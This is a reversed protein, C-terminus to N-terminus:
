NLTKDLRDEHLLSVIVALFSPLGMFVVISRPTIFGDNAIIFPSLISLYILIFFGAGILVSTKQANRLCWYVFTIALVLLTIVYIYSTLLNDSHLVLFEQSKVIKVLNDKIVTLNFNTRQGDSFRMLIFNTLLSVFYIGLTWFFSICRNQKSAKPFLFIVAFTLLLFYPAFSQYIALVMSLYLFLIFSNKLTVGHNVVRRFALSCLLIGFSYPLIVEPFLFLAGMFVNNFLLIVSLVLIAVNLKSWKEKRSLLTLFVVYSSISIIVIALFTSLFFAVEYDLNIFSLINLFAFTIPRGNTFFNVVPYHGTYNYSDVSFHPYLFVIYFTVSVLFSLLLIGIRYKKLQEYAM